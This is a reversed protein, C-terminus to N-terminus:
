IRPLLPDDDPQKGNKQDHKHDDVSTRLLLSLFFRVIHEIRDLGTILDLSDAPDAADDYLNARLVVGEHQLRTRFCTSFGIKFEVLLRDIM